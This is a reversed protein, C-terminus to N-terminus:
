PRKSSYIRQLTGNCLLNALKSIVVTIFLYTEHLLFTLALSLFQLSANKPGLAKLLAADEDDDSM